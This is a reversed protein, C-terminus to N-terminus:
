NNDSHRCHRRYFSEDETREFPVYWFKMLSVYRLKARESATRQRRGNRYAVLARKADTVPTRTPRIKRNENKWNKTLRVTKQANRRRRREPSHRRFFAVRVARTYFRYLTCSNYVFPLSLRREGSSPQSRRFCVRTNQTRAAYVTTKEM